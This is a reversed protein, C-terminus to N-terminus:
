MNRGSIAMMLNEVFYKLTVNIYAAHPHASSNFTKFLLQEELYTKM